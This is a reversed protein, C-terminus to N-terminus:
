MAYGAYILNREVLTQKNNTQRRYVLQTRIEKQKTKIEKKIFGNKRSIL